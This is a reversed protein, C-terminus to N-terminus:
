RSSEEILADRRKALAELRRKDLLDGLNERLKQDDIDLLATRWQDGIELEINKLYAPRDKRTGFSNEHNVLMLQWDDPSYLMSLPTREPNHVLTDYVYMARRQRELSCPADDMKEDAVRERESLTEPSVYQLTGLQGDIERRVTVPVMDLGLMRDLKYAALEPVHGMKRRLANFYAFVTKDNAAVQVLKWASDNTNSDVITGNNLISVLADDDITKSRYGVRRPPVIPSLDKVGNESVVSLADDEIILAYGSGQYSSKLIGTNIELIRGNM